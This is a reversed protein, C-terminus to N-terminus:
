VNIFKYTLGYEYNNEWIGYIKVIFQNENENCMLENFTKIFGNNLFESIKYVPKKDKINIKQLIDKETACLRSIVYMNKNTDFICKYKNFTKEIGLLQLNFIIFIGNLIFLSNSYVIRIFNSNEMVTNKIKEQFFIENNNFDPLNIVVYM